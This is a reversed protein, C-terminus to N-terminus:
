SPVGTAPLEPVAAVAAQWLDRPKLQHEAATLDAVQRHCCDFRVTQRMRETSVLSKSNVVGM